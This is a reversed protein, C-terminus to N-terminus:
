IKYGVLDKGKFEKTVLFPIKKDGPKYNELESKSEVKISNEM